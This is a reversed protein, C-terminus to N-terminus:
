EMESGKEKKASQIDILEVYEGICKLAEEYSNCASVEKWLKNCDEMRNQKKLIRCTAGLIAFINGSSGKSDFIVLKKENNM